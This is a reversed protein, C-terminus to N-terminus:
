LRLKQMQHLLYQIWRFVWTVFCVTTEEYGTYRLSNSCMTRTLGIAEDDPCVPAYQHQIPNAKKNPYGYGKRLVRKFKWPM